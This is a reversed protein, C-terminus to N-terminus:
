FLKFAVATRSTDRASVPTLELSNVSAGYGAFQRNLQGAYRLVADAELSRGSVEVTKGANTIAVNTLWLGPEGIRALTILHGAYGELSGLEGRRYQGMISEAETARARLATIEAALRVPDTRQALAEKMTQLAAKESALQSNAQKLRSELRATEAQLMQWYAVLLGGVIVLFALGFLVPGRKQTVERAYLNIQQTM